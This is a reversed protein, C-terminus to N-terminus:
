PNGLHSVRTSVGNVSLVTATGSLTGNSPNNLLGVSINENDLTVNGKDDLIAVQVSDM